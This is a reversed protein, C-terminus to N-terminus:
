KKSNVSSPPVTLIEDLFAEIVPMSFTFGAEQLRQPYACQGQSLFTSGEGYLLRLIFPPIKINFFSHYHQTMEQSLQNQNIQQPTTLNYIGKLSPRHLLYDLAAILDKLAIWPFYQTGPGIRVTTKFLETYALQKFAGGDPSLVIGFRTIVCRTEMRVKRAEAEWHQCLQSLFSNNQIPDYENYCGTNPYIGIASASILTKPPHPSSNIAQVISHTPLLRSNELTQKYTRTWRHNIPAGALNIVAECNSLLETLRPSPKQLLNRDLPFVNYGQSNFFASLHSGIFGTSGSIAINM